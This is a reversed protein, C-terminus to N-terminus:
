PLCELLPNKQATVIKPKFVKGLFIALFDRFMSMFHIFISLFTLFHIFDHIELKRMCIEFNQAFDSFKQATARRHSPSM